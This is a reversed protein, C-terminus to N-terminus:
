WFCPTWPNLINYQSDEQSSLSLSVIKHMILVSYKKPTFIKWSTKLSPYKELTINKLPHVNKLYVWLRFIKSECLKSPRTGNRFMYVNMEVWYKKGKRETWVLRQNSISRCFRSAMTRALAQNNWSSSLWSIFSASSLNTRHENIKIYKWDESPSQEPKLSICPQSPQHQRSLPAGHRVLAKRGHDWYKPIKTQTLRWNCTVFRWRLALILRANFCAAM